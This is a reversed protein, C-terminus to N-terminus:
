EGPKQSTADTSPPTATPTTASQLSKSDTPVVHMCKITIDASIHVCMCLVVVYHYEHYVFKTCMFICVHM